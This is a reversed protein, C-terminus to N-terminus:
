CEHVELKAKPTLITQTTKAKISVANPDNIEPLAKDDSLKIWTFDAPLIFRGKRAEAAGM